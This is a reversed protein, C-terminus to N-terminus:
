QENEFKYLALQAHETSVMTDIGGASKAARTKADTRREEVASNRPKLVPTVQVIGLPGSALDGDATNGICM